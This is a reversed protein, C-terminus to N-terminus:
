KKVKWLKKVKPIRWNSRQQIVLMKYEKNKGFKEDLYPHNSMVMTELIKWKYKWLPSALGKTEELGITDKDYYVVFDIKYTGVKFGNCILDLTVQTEWDKIEKAVKRLNLEAAYNAEFRSDYVTDGVKTKKANSWKNKVFYVM